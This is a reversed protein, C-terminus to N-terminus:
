QTTGEPEEGLSAAIEELLAQRNVLRSFERDGELLAVFPAATRLVSRTRRARPADRMGNAWADFASQPLLSGLLERTVWSAREQTTERLTVWEGNSQPQPQPPVAPISDRQLSEILGSVLQRARSAEFGGADSVILPQPMALTRPDPPWQAGFPLVPANAPPGAPYLSVLGRLWAAELWPYRRSLAWRLQRVPAVAVFRRESTPTREVFVFAKVGRMREMMVAAIYLRSTLWEEGQGLSVLAYDAPTGSQVQELMMRSSDSIEAPCTATRIDDLLPTITASSAAVLELEVKFLSLKTIRSGLASVFQAIPRRFGGAIVLAVIPWALAKVLEVVAFTGTAAPMAPASASAQAMVDCAALVGAALLMVISASYTKKM